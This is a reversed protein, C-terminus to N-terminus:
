RLRHRLTLVRQVSREFRDRDMDGARLKRLLARQARAGDRYDTYLLLDTGARAAGVGVRAPGGVARIAAGGLADTISVGEFGLRGRLEGGALVRSLSAPKDSFAPYIASGIMVIAGGGAVFGRYPAEDVRRLTRKSLGIRQVAFDTNERAAGLGPFHKATAAVGGRQMASAFPLATARVGRATSSFARDTEAIVGGPRGVDLVPALNVNIGVDRLNGATLRGQRRSYAPGRAGMQEASSAPAGGLRKVLGGEQDIMVLLPDHLHRPRRVAQLRAVLRRAFARGPLNDTFLIVGAAEGERLMRKLPDPIRTGDFGVVLRQGALQDATLREAATQRPASPGDGLAAGFAFAAVAMAALLAV